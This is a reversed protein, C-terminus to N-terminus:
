PTNGSIVWPGYISSSMADMILRDAEATTMHPPVVLNTYFFGPGSCLFDLGPYKERLNTQSRQCNESQHVEPPLEIREISLQFDLNPQVQIPYSFTFCKFDTTAGVPDIRSGSPSFQNNNIQLIAGWPYWQREDPMQMCFKINFEDFDMYSSQYTVYLNNLGNTVDNGVVISVWIRTNEITAGNKDQLHYYVTYSGNSQPAIMDIAIEVTETPRVKIPLPVKEQNGLNVGDPISSEVVLSFGEWTQTSDNKVTWTKLFIDGPNFRTGDPITESIFTFHIDSSNKLVEPTTQATTLTPSLTQTKPVITLTPTITNQPTRSSIPTPKLDPPQSQCATVILLILLFILNRFRKM